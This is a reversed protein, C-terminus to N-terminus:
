LQRVMVEGKRLLYRYEGNSEEAFLLEHSSQRAFAHFDKYSGADTALIEVIQGVQLKNLAQKAKLLPMPCQMGKADVTIEITNLVNRSVELVM